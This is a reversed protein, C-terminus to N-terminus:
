QERPRRVQRGLPQQEAPARVPAGAGARGGPRRRRGRGMRRTGRSSNVSLCLNSGPPTAFFIVSLPPFCIFLYAAPGLGAECWGARWGWDGPLPARLPAPSGPGGLGRPLRAGASASGPARRCSLKQVSRCGHGRRYRPRLQEGRVGSLSRVAWGHRERAERLRRRRSRAAARQGCHGPRGRRSPPPGPAPVLTPEGPVWVFRMGGSGPAPSCVAKAHTCRQM